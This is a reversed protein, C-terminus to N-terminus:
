VTRVTEFHYIQPRYDSEGELPIKQRYLGKIDKPILLQGLHEENCDYQGILHVNCCLHHTYGNGDLSGEKYGFEDIFGFDDINVDPIVILEVFADRVAIDRRIFLDFDIYSEGDGRHSPADEAAYM